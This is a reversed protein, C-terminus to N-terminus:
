MVAVIFGFPEGKAWIKPKEILAEEPIGVCNGPARQVSGCVLLPLWSTIELPEDAGFGVGMIEESEGDNAVAVVIGNVNCTVPVPKTGPAVTYKPPCGCLVVKTLEVCNLALIRPLSTSLSPVTTTNTNLGSGPPPAEVETSNGKDAREGTMEDMLGEVTTASVEDIKNTIPKFKSVLETTFKLPVAREVTYLLGVRRVIIIGVASIGACPVALMETVVGEFPTGPPPVELMSVRVIKPGSVCGSTVAREGALAVPPPGANVSVTLPLPNTCPECTLKLVTFTAVDNTLGVCSVARIGALAM